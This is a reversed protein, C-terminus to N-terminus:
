HERLTGPIGAGIAPVIRDAFSAGVPWTGLGFLTYITAGVDALSDRMGIEVPNVGRGVALLPVYERSHDTSPTTPDCGHDATVLLLDDARMLDTFQGLALDVEALARAFGIADNRHGYKMDFDICNAFVLGSFDAGALRLLAALTSANDTTHDTATLGRGGFIDEIKGLGIVDHGAAQLADLITPGVPQLSFDRRGDTRTFSGPRGTFPRAIVRGVAHPGTLIERALGCWRYLLERPVVEEHAAIQFVSDASTYVIPYGTRLHDPGLEALIETGSAPKNGLVPRGIAASFREIVEAPFGQPYTPFPADLILGALEWHGTITDKGPSAEALLAFAGTPAPPPPVGPIEALCGLGWRALNPVHLGGVAEAAHVLTNSGADGYRDADPLAGLGVGDLVVLFIRKFRM